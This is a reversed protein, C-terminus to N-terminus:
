TCITDIDNGTGTYTMPILENGNGDYIRGNAVDFRTYDTLDVATSGIKEWGYTAPTTSSDVIVWVYEDYINTGTGSNPVLYITNTSGSAPLSQVIEFQIGISAAAIAAAVFATTAIQTTSTGASATPATPTGTLAPSALPAKDGLASNIVKNQVPNESSSSLSSDVTIHSYNADAVFNSDNTLDSTKTPVTIDLTDPNQGAAPTFTIGTSSNNKTVALNVINNAVTLQQSNVKLGLDADKSTITLTTGNVSVSEIINDEGAIDKIKAWLVALGGDDLYKLTSM